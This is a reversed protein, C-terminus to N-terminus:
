STSRRLPGAFTWAFTREANALYPGRAAADEWAYELDELWLCCALFRARDIVAADSAAEDLAHALQAAADPGLDRHIRAVDRAPDTRAADTWDIVGTIAGSGDVLIHEAGLDNHCPISDGTDPPLRDLARLVQGAREAGLRSRLREVREIAEERWAKMPHLDRPLAQAARSRRLARLMGALGSIMAPSVPFATRLLPTGPLRRYAFVGVEHARPIPVAVPSATSLERLLGVEREVVAPSGFRAIHDGVEVTINETGHTLLRVPAEAPWLRHRAGFEAVRARLSSDLGRALNDPM